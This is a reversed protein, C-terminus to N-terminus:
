LIKHISTAERLSKRSNYPKKTVTDIFDILWEIVICNWTKQRHEEEDNSDQAIKEIWVDKFIKQVITNNSRKRRIKHTHTHKRREKINNWRRESLSWM